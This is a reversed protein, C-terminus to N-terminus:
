VEQWMMVKKLTEVNEKRLDQIIVEFQKREWDITDQTDKM